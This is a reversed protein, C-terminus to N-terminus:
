FRDRVERPTLLCSCDYKSSLVVVCGKNSHNNDTHGCECTWAIPEAGSHLPHRRLYEAKQKKFARRDSYSRLPRHAAIWWVFGGALLPALLGLVRM